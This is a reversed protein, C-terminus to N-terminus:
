KNKPHNRIKYKLGDTLRQWRLKKRKNCSCKYWADAPQDKMSPRFWGCIPCWVVFKARDLRELKYASDNAKCTLGNDGYMKCLAQFKKGHCLRGEETAKVLHACEHVILHRFFEPTSLNAEIIGVRYTITRTLTNCFGWNHFAKRKRIEVKINANPEDLMERGIIITWRTMFEIAEEITRFTADPIITVM